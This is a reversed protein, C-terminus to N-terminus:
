RGANSGFSVVGAQTRARKGRHPDASILLSPLPFLAGTEDYPRGSAKQLVQLAEDSTMEGIPLNHAGLDRALFLLRSTIIVTGQNVSLIYRAVDYAGNTQSGDEDDDEAAQTDVNDIIILWRSNGASTLWSDVAHMAKDIDGENKPVKQNSDLVRPLPILEAVRAISTRLSQESGGNTWFLSDYDHRHQSAYDRVMQSKGIGGPGSLVLIKQRDLSLPLLRKEMDVMTQTRPVFNPAIPADILRLPRVLFNSSPHELGQAQREQLLREIRQLIENHAFDSSKISNEVERLLDTQADVSAATTLSAQKSYSLQLTSLLVNIASVYINLDEKFKHLDEKRCQAWTIKRVQDRISSKGATLSQYSATRLIFKDICERCGRVAQQTADYERSAEQVEIEKIAVLARELCCLQAILGRYEAKAGFSGDLADILSKLLALGAVFDGVSFGFSM